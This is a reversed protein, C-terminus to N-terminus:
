LKPRLLESDVKIITKGKNKGTFLKKFAERTNEIGQTVDERHKLKGEKLLGILHQRGAKVTEKHDYYIFGQISANKIILKPYNKIKMDIPTSKVNSGSYNYTSIAGCAIIRAGENIHNLICDLTRGGVNDFYVDVGKPCTKKIEETFLKEDDIFNKYNICKDAGLTNVVYDCKDQDGAIGVVYCGLQKALQVAIEGVAGAATSVVVTEGKKPKGIDMLGVYATLGNTGLVGLFDRINPYNSPIHGITKSDAFAYKQFGLRGMVLDGPKYKNSKSLLVKGVAVTPFIQGLSIRGIYTEQGTMWIRMAPDVSLYATEILVHDNQLKEEPNEIVETEMKLNEEINHPFKEDPFKVLRFVTNTLKKPVSEM